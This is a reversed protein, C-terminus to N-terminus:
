YVYQYNYMYMLIYSSQFLHNLLIKLFNYLQTIDFKIMCINIYMCM